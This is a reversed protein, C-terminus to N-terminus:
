YIILIDFFFFFFDDGGRKGRILEKKVGEGDGCRKERQDVRDEMVM